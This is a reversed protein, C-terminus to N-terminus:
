RKVDLRKVYLSDILLHGNRKLSEGANTSASVGRYVLNVGLTELQGDCWNFFKHGFGRLEKLIFAVDMVAQASDRHHLHQSLFYGSYGILLADERATFM